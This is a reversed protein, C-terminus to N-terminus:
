INSCIAAAKRLSFQQVSVIQKHTQIYDLIQKANTCAYACVNFHVFSLNFGKIGLQRYLCYGGAHIYVKLFHSISLLKVHVVANGCASM